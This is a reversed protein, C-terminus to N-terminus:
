QAGPSAEARCLRFGNMNLRAQPPCIGRAASRCDNAGCSVAGGRRVRSEGDAPGAYDNTDQGAYPAYWDQCWEWANGHMDQINWANGHQKGVEHLVNEANEKFWAFNRLSSPEQGFCFASESGARCAYEWEAETPLYFGGGGKANLRQIFEQCDEWSVRDVPLADGQVPSPTGGMIAQWQAQTVECKGIWFGKTVTVRHQTEDARRGQESDPSGMLFSGPPCWVMAISEHMKIEGPVPPEPFSPSPSIMSSVAAGSDRNANGPLDRIALSAGPAAPREPQKEMEPSLGTQAVADEEQHQTIRVMTPAPLPNPAYSFMKMLIMILALCVVAGAGGLLFRKRIKKVCGDNERSASCEAAGPGVHKEIEDYVSRASVPREEPRPSLLQLVLQDLWLPVAANNASPVDLHTSPFEGTLCQYIFIGLSYLDSRPSVKKGRLQEPAMYAPTGLVADTCTFGEEGLIHALGFDLLKVTGDGCLFVNQPKLDRHVTTKHAYELALLVQRTIELTEEVSIKKRQQLEQAM